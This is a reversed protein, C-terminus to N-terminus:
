ESIYIYTKNNTIKRIMKIVERTAQKNSFPNYSIFIRKDETMYTVFDWGLRFCFKDINISPVENFKIGTLAGSILKEKKIQAYQKEKEKLNKYYRTTIPYFLVFYDNVIGNFPNFDAKILKTILSKAIMSNDIEDLLFAINNSFGPIYGDIIYKKLFDFWFDNEIQPFIKKYIEFINEYVQEKENFKINKM